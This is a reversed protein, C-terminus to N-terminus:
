RWRILAQGSISAPGKILNRVADTCGGFLAWSFFLCRSALDRREMESQGPLFVEARCPRATYGSFLLRPVSARGKSEASDGLLLLLSDGAGVARCLM